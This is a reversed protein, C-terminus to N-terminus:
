KLYKLAKQPTAPYHYLGRERYSMSKAVNAFDRYFDAKTMEFTGEPTVIRFRDRPGLPEIVDAKFGLRSFEYSAVKKSFLSM